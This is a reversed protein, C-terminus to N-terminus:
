EIVIKPPSGGIAFAGDSICFVAYEYTGIPVDNKVKLKLRKGNKLYKTSGGKLNDVANVPSFLFDPFQFSVDSGVAKWIITTNKKVKVKYKTYDSADVVKWVSDVKVVNLEIKNTPPTSPITYMGLLLMLIFSGTFLIVLKNKM